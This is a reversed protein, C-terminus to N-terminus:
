KTINNARIIEELAVKPNRFRVTSKEKDMHIATKPCSHICALCGECHHHFCPKQKPTINNVPCVKACTGCNTCNSDIHFRKDVDNGMLKKASSRMMKGFLKDTFGPQLCYRKKNKIDQYIKSLQDDVKKEPLKTLQASIEYMPLYTDTMWLANIYDPELGQKKSLRQVELPASTLMDGYTIIIFIYSASLKVTSLFRQVILPVTGSYCPTVIGIVDDSLQRTDTQMLQSISILESNEGLYKAAQLSNGTATFYLLKM